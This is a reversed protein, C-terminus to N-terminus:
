SARAKGSTGHGSVRPGRLQGLDLGLVDFGEPLILQHCEGRIGGYGCPEEAVPFFWILSVADM